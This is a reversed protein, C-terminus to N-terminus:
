IDIGAGPGAIGAARGPSGSERIGGWITMLRTIGEDELM